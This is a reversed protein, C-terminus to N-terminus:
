EILNNTKTAESLMAESQDFGTLHGKHGNAQLLSLFKGNACGVELIRERGQLQLHEIVIEDLNVQKEEYRKHTDIRTQLNNSASYQRKVDNMKEYEVKTCFQQIAHTLVDTKKLGEYHLASEFRELLKEEIRFHIDKRKTM